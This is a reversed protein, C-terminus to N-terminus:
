CGWVITYPLSVKFQSDLGVGILEKDPGSSVPKPCWVPKKTKIIIIIITYIEFGIFM